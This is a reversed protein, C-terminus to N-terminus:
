SNSSSSEGKNIYLSRGSTKTSNDLFDPLTTQHLSEETVLTMWVVLNTSLTLM